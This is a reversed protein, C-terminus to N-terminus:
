TGLGGALLLFGHVVSWGGGGGGRLCYKLIKLTKSKQASVNRHSSSRKKGTLDKFMM